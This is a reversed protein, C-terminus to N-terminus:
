RIPRSLAGLGACVYDKEIKVWALRRREANMKDRQKSFPKEKVMLKERTAFWAKPSAVKHGEIGRVTKIEPM